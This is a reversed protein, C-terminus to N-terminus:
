AFLEHLKKVESAKLSKINKAEKLPIKRSEVLVDWINKKVCLRGFIRFKDLLQQKTMPEFDFNDNM